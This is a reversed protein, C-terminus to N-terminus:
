LQDKKRFLKTWGSQRPRNKWEAMTPVDYVPPFATGTTITRTAPIATM